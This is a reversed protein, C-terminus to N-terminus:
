APAQIAAPAPAPAAAPVAAAPSPNPKTLAQLAQSTSSPSKAPPTQAFAPTASPTQLTTGDGPLTWDGGQTHRSIMQTVKDKDAAVVLLKAKVDIIRQEMELIQQEVVGIEAANLAEKENFEELLQKLMEPNISM